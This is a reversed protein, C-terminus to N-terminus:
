SSLRYLGPTSLMRLAVAAVPETEIRCRRAGARGEVCVQAGCQSVRYARQAGHESALRDLPWDSEAVMHLSGDQRILLSYGTGGGCAEATQPAAMVYAAGLAACLARGMLMSTRM